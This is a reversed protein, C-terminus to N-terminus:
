FGCTLFPTLFDIIIVVAVISSSIISIIIQRNRQCEVRKNEKRRYDNRWLYECVCVCVCVCM